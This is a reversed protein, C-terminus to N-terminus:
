FIGVVVAAISLLLAAASMAGFAIAWPSLAADPEEPGTRSRISHEVRTLSQVLKAQVQQLDAISQETRILRERLEAQDRHVGIVATAAADTFEEFRRIDAGSIVEASRKARQTASDVVGRARDLM